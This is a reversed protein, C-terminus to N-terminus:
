QNGKGLVSAIKKAHEEVYGSESGIITINRTEVNFNGIIEMSDMNRVKVESQIYDTGAFIGGLVRAVDGRMNYSIFNVEVALAGSKRDIKAGNAVLGAELSQQFYQAMRPSIQGSYKIQYSADGIPVRVQPSSPVIKTTACGAMLLLALGLLASKVITM